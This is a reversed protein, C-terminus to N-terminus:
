IRSVRKIYGKYFDISNLYDRLTISEGDSHLAAIGGPGLHVPEFRYVNEAISTFHRSDTAAPFIGPVVPLGPWIDGISSAIARFEGTNMSSIRSPEHIHNTDEYRVEVGLPEAVSRVHRLIDDSHDGPVARFNVLAFPESPVINEKSSGQMMAIATTTRVLANGSPWSELIGTIDVPTESAGSSDSFEKLMGSTSQLMDEVPKCLRPTMQNEELEALCRCLNGAASRLEPVSAHGQLGKATLRLTLYGKEALGIVAIDGKLWPYSYIYGGEDLVSSLSIGREELIKVIEAAGKDGGTEEDHGFALIITRDPRFEKLLIDECAQLMSSVGVKYDITGRGWIRDNSINGSFPPEPWMEGDIAPVVDLHATLMCPKLSRDKGPLIYLLSAGSIVERTFHRHVNPFAEELYEALKTFPELNFSEGPQRSVTEFKLIESFVKLKQKDTM